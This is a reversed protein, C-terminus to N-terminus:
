LTRHTYTDRSFKRPKIKDDYKKQKEPPDNRYFYNNYPSVIVFRVTNTKRKRLRKNLPWYQLVLVPSPPARNIVVTTCKEYVYMYEYITNGEPYASCFYSSPLDRSLRLM